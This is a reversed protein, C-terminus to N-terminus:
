ALPRRRVRGDPAPRQKGGPRQAPTNSFFVHPPYLHISQTTNFQWTASGSSTATFGSVASIASAIASGTSGAYAFRVQLLKRTDNVTVLLGQGSSTARVPVLAWNNGEDGAAKASAIDVEISNGAASAHDLRASAQPRVPAAGITVSLSAAKGIYSAKSGAKVAVSVTDTGTGGASYVYLSQGQSWNSATYTLETQDGATADDTDITILSSTETFVLTVTEAGTLPEAIRVLKRYAGGEKMTVTNGAAFYIDEAATATVYNSWASVGGIEWSAGVRYRYTTGTTVGTDTYTTVDSGSAFAYYVPNTCTAGECRYINHGYLTGNNGTDTPGTWSLSVSTDSTATVSLGSPAPAQAFVASSFLFLLLSLVSGTFYGAYTLLNNILRFCLNRGLRLGSQIIMM